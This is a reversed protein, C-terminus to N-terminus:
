SGDHFWRLYHRERARMRLREARTGDAHGVLHLTGHIVYRLLEVEPSSRYRQAVAAATQASVIVEGELRGPSQELLFSLVDTPEPDGLYRRHLGAITADDVVAVSLLAETIGHDQLVQRIARRILRRDIKLHRQNNAIAIQILQGSNEQKATANLFRDKRSRGRVIGSAGSSFFWQKDRRRGCPRLAAHQRLM